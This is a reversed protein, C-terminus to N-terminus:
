SRALAECPGKHERDGCEGCRAVECGWHHFQYAVVACGRCPSGSGAGWDEDEFGYQVRQRHELQTLACGSALRMLRGCAPCTALETM